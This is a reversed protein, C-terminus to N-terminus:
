LFTTEDSVFAFAFVAVSDDNANSATVDIADVDAGDDVDACLLLLILSM